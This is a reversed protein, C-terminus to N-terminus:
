AEDIQAGCIKLLLRNCEYIDAECVSASRSSLGLKVKGAASKIDNKVSTYCFRRDIVTFGVNDCNDLLKPYDQMMCEIRAPSKFSTFTNDTYKPNIFEDVNGKSKILVKDYKELDM